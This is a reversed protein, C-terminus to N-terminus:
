SHGNDRRNALEHKAFGVAVCWVSWELNIFLIVCLNDSRYGLNVENKKSDIIENKDWTHVATRSLALAHFSQAMIFKDLNQQSESPLWTHLLICEWINTRSQRARRVRWHPLMNSLGDEKINCIRRLWLIRKLWSAPWICAAAMGLLSADSVVTMGFAATRISPWENPASM